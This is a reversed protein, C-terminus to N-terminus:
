KGNHVVVSWVVGALIAVAGAIMQYEDSSFYGNFGVATGLTKFGTRVFSMVQEKTFLKGVFEM